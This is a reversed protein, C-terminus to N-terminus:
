GISFIGSVTGVLAALITIIAVFQKNSNALLRSVSLILVAFFLVLFLM